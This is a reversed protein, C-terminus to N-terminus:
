KGITTRGNKYNKPRLALTHRVKKSYLKIAQWHIRAVVAVTMFPYLLLSVVIKASTLVSFSGGMYTNLLQRDTSDYYNIVSKFYDKTYDFTFEYHGDNNNFPSVYLQKKAKLVDHPLIPSHDSKYLLYNHSQKFTNRVECVVARLQDDKTTMLWYSIPNFAYGFLRPHCVLTVKDTASLKINALSLTSTIFQHWSSNKDKFGHDQTYVSFVNLKNLSLLKPLTYQMDNQVPIHVYFVKYLFSNKKPWLRVHGVKATLLQVVQNDM